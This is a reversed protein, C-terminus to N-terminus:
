LLLYENKYLEGDFDGLVEDEGAGFLDGEKVLSDDREFVDASVKVAVFGLDAFAGACFGAEGLEFFEVGGAGDAGGVVVADFEHVKKNKGLELLKSHTTTQSLWM